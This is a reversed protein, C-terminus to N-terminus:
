HKELTPHNTSFAENVSSLKEKNPFRSFRQFLCRTQDIFPLLIDGGWPIEFRCLVPARCLLPKKWCYQFVDRRVPKLWLSFASIQGGLLRLRSHSLPLFHSAIHVPLTSLDSTNSDRASPQGGRTPKWCPRICDVCRWGTAAASNEGGRTPAWLLWLQLTPLFCHDGGRTIGDRALWYM